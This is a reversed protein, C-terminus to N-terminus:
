AGRSAMYALGELVLDPRIEAKTEVWAQVLEADGGTLLVSPAAGLEAAVASVAADLAAALGLMAGHGVADDTATGLLDLGQPRARAAATTGIQQTGRDLANAIIRPGAFILGGLHRGGPDVADFTVATGADIICVAGAALQCAAIMAVWRDVGLQAPDTYSCRVGFGEAQTAAFRPKVGYRECVRESLRSAVNEGMVNSVLVDDASEPLASFLAGMARDMSEIHLVNGTAGLRGSQTLGWKIRTNGIDIVFTM